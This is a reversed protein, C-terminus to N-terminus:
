GPRLSCAPEPAPCVRVCEGCGTCRDAVVRPTADQWVVAGPEPCRELCVSCFLLCRSAVIQAVLPPAPLRGTLLARRSLAPTM